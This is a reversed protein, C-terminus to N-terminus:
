DHPQDELHAIIAELLRKEVKQAESRTMFSHIRLINTSRRITEFHEATKPELKPLQEKLHPALAGLSIEIKTTM